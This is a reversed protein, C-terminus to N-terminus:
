KWMTEALSDVATARIWEKVTPFDQGTRPRGCCIGVHSRPRCIGIYWTVWTGVDAEQGRQCADLFVCEKRNRACSVTTELQRAPAQFYDSIVMLIRRALSPVEQKLASPAYSQLPPLPSVKAARPEDSISPLFASSSYPKTLFKRSAFILKKGSRTTDFQNSPPIRSPFAAHFSFLQYFAM